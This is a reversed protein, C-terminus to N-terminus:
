LKYCIIKNNSSNNLDNLMIFPTYQKIYIFYFTPVRRWWTNINFVRTNTNNNRRM